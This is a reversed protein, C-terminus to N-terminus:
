QLSMYLFTSVLTCEWQITTLTTKVDSSHAVNKVLILNETSTRRWTDQCHRGRCSSQKACTVSCSVGRCTDGRTSVSNSSPRFRKAACRVCILRGLICRYTSSWQRAALLVVDVTSVAILNRERTFASTSWWNLRAAWCREAFRASLRRVAALRGIVGSRWFGTSVWMSHWSLVRQFRKDVFPVVTLCPSYHRMAPRIRSSLPNRLSIKMWMILLNEILKLCRVLKVKMKRCFKMQLWVSLLVIM